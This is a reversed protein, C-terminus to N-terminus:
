WIPLFRLKFVFFNPQSFLVIWFVKQNQTNNRFGQTKVNVIGLKYRLGAASAHKSVRVLAPKEGNEVGDAAFRQVNPALAYPLICVYIGYLTCLLVTNIKKEFSFWIITNHPFANEYLELGLISMDLSNSVTINTGCSQFDNSIIHAGSVNCSGVTRVGTQANPKGEEDQNDLIQLSVKGKLHLYTLSQPIRLLMIYKTPIQTITRNIMMIMLCWIIKQGTDSCTRSSWFKRRRNRELLKWDVVRTRGKLQVMGNRRSSPQFWTVGCEDKAWSRGLMWKHMIILGRTQVLNLDIETVKSTPGISSGIDLGCPDLNM